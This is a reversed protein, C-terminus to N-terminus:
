ECWLLSIGYAEWVFSKGAQGCASDLLRGVVRLREDLLQGLQGSDLQHVLNGLPRIRQFLIRHFPGRKNTSVLLAHETSLVGLFPTVM